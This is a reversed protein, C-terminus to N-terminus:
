ALCKIKWNKIPLVATEGLRLERSINMVKKVPM